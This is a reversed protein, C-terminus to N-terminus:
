RAGRVCVHTTPLALLRELGIPEGCAECDTGEGRDLRAAAEDLQALDERAQRLLALVQAREYAITSGEPDHEDDTGVLEAAEFIVERSQELAAVQELKRRRAEAVAERAAQEEPGQDARVVGLRAGGPAISPALDRPPFRMAM